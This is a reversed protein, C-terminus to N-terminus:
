SSGGQTPPIDDRPRVRAPARKGQLLRVYRSQWGTREAEDLAMLLSVGHLRAVGKWDEGSLAGELAWLLNLSTTLRLCRGEFFFRPEELSRLAM